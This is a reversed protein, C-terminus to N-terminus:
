RPSAPTSMAGAGGALDSVAVTATEQAGGGKDDVVVKMGTLVLTPCPLQGAMRPVWSSEVTCSSGPERGLRLLGSRIGGPVWLKGDVHIEYPVLDMEHTWDGGQGPRSGDGERNPREVVWCFTVPSGTAGPATPLLKLHVASDLSLASADGETKLFFPFSLEHPVPDTLSRPGKSTGPAPRGGGAPSLNMDADLCSLVSLAAQLQGFGFKGALASPKREPPPPPSSPRSGPRSPQKDPENQQEGALLQGALADLGQLAEAPWGCTGPAFDCFASLPLRAALGGSLGTYSVSLTSLLRQPGSGAAADRQSNERSDTPTPVDSPGLTAAGSPIGVQSLARRNARIYYTLGVTAGSAVSLPLQQSALDLDVLYGPQLSLECRELNTAFPLRSHLQVSLLARGHGVAVAQIRIEFARCVPMSLVSTHLRICGTEAGYELDVALRGEYPCPPTPRCSGGSTGPPGAILVPEPSPIQEPASAWVWVVHSAAAGGDDETARQLGPLKIKGRKMEGHQQQWWSGQQQPELRLVPGDYELQVAPAGSGSGGGGGGLHANIRAEPAASGGDPSVVVLQGALRLDLTQGLSGALATVAVAMPQRYGLLLGHVPTMATLGVKSERPWARLAVEQVAVEGELQQVRALRSGPTLGEAAHPLRFLASYPLRPRVAAAVHLPAVRVLARHGQLYARLESAVFCGESDVNAHLVVRNEGPRLTLPGMHRAKLRRLAPPKGAAGQQQQEPPWGVLVVTAQQLTVAQLAASSPAYSPRGAHLLGAAKGGRRVNPLKSFLIFELPPAEGVQTEPVLGHGPGERNRLVLARPEPAKAKRRQKEEAEEQRQRAALLEDLSPVAPRSQCDLAEMSQHGSGLRASTRYLRGAGAESLALAICASLDLLLPPAGLREDSLSVAPRIPSHNLDASNELLLSLGPGGM